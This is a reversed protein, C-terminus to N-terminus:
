LFWTRQVRDLICQSSSKSHTVPIIGETAFGACRRVRVSAQTEMELFDFCKLPNSDVPDSVSSFAVVCFVLPRLLAWLKSSHPDRSGIKNLREDAKGSICMYYRRYLIQEAKKPPSRSELVYVLFRSSEVSWIYNSWEGM